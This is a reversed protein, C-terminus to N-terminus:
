VERYFLRGTGEFELSENILDDAATEISDSSIVAYGEYRKKNPTTDIYLAIIVEEGTRQSLKEDAWYSEASASFGKITPLNEKWGGSEFTTMDATDMSLDASWNFFGGVQEVSVSKGSVTVEDEELLPAPFCVVAGLYEILVLGPYEVGNKYVTLSSAKDLYRFAEDIITYRTREINGFTAEEVFSVPAEDTQMYVAGVKGAIAM